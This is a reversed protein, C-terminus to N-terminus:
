RGTLQELTELAEDIGGAAHLLEAIEATQEPSLQPIEGALLEHLEDMELDDWAIPEEDSTMFAKEAQIYIERAEGDAATAPLSHRNEVAGGPSPSSCLV